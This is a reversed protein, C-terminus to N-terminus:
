GFLDSQGDASGAGRAPKRAAEPAMEWEGERFEHPRILAKVDDLPARLEGLWLPVDAEDLVLPMRDTIRAIMANAPTTVQAFEYEEGRGVDFADFIVGMIVPRGDRRHFTWQKTRKAGTLAGNRGRVDMEEGENFSSAWTVGRRLRFAESWTPLRDVTEGRAHMHRIMRRPGPARDTFGWVMTTAVRAGEEDLHVVPVQRMPTFTEVAADALSSVLEAYDVVGSWATMRTFKGCM